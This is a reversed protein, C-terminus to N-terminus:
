WQVGGTKISALGVICGVAIDVLEDDVDTLTGKQVTRCLEDREEDIVGLIEHRSIIIEKGKEILREATKKQLKM